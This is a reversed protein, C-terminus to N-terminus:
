QPQRGGLPDPDPRHLFLGRALTSVAFRNVLSPGLPKNSVATARPRHLPWSPVQTGPPRVFITSAAGADM